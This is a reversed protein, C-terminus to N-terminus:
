SRRAAVWEAAPLSLEVPHWGAVRCVMAHATSAETGRQAVPTM